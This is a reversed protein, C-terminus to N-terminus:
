LLSFIDLPYTTRWNLKQVPASSAAEIIQTNSPADNNGFLSQLKAPREAPFKFCHEWLAAVEPSTDLLYQFLYHFWFYPFEDTQAATEPAVSAVPNLPIGEILRRPRSWFKAIESWWQRFIFHDPTAALFWSSLPRDSGPREFAFFGASTLVDPLWDDLRKVPFLSADVWIGGRTLLLRARVVDSLAQPPLAITPFVSDQLLSAVHSRELVELRYQPNLAAWREFNLQVLDPAQEKGQLWMSYITKPVAMRTFMGLGM